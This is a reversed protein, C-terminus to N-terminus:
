YGGEIYKRLKEKSIEGIDENLLLEAIEKDEPYVDYYILLGCFDWKHDCPSDIIFRFLEDKVPFHLKLLREFVWTSCDNVATTYFNYAVDEPNDTYSFLEYAIEDLYEGIDECILYEFLVFDGMTIDIAGSSLAAFIIEWVFYDTPPHTKMLNYIFEELFDTTGLAEVCNEFLPDGYLDYIFELMEYITSGSVGNYIADIFLEPIIDEENNHVLKSINEETLLVPRELPEERQRGLRLM